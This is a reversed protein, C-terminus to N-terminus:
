IYLVIRWHCQPMLRAIFNILHRRQFIHICQFVPKIKATLRFCYKEFFNKAYKFVEDRTKGNFIGELDDSYNAEVADIIRSKNEDAKNQMEARYAEEAAKKEAQEAAKAAKKEASEKAAEAYATKAVEATEAMKKTATEAVGKLKDFLAMKFGGM